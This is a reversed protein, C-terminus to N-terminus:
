REQGNTMLRRLHELCRKRLPGISDSAMGLREAIEAYSPGAPDYFLAELLGRCRDDLRNMARVLADAEDHALAQDEPLAEPDPREELAVDSEYRGLDRRRRQIQRYSLRGAVVLLWSAIRRRDRLEELGEWLASWTNQFVDATDDEHLGYRRAVSYVLGAYRRVLNEWAEPEGRLCAEVLEGDERAENPGM